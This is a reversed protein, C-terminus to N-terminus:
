WGSADVRALSGFYGRVVGRDISAVAAGGPPVWAVGAAGGNGAAGFTAQGSRGAGGAGGAKSSTSGARAGSSGPAAEYVPALPLGTRGRLQPVVGDGASKAGPADGAAAGGPVSRSPKRGPATGPASSGSGRGASGGKEGPKGGASSAGQSPPRGDPARAVAASGTPGESTTGGRAGNAAAASGDPRKGASGDPQDGGPQSASSRTGEPAKESTGDSGDTPAVAGGQGTRATPEAGGVQADSAASDGATSRGSAAGGTRTVGDADVAALPPSDTLPQEFGKLGAGAEGAASGAIGSEARLARNELTVPQAASAVAPANGRPSPVLLLLALAGGLAALLAAEGSRPQLRVRASAESRGLAGRVDALVLAGLGRASAAREASTELELATSVGAGLELDRDLLRAAAVPSTRHALGIAVAAAALGGAPVLWPGSGDNGTALAGLQLLCAAGAGVLAGRRGIALARRREVRRQWVKLGRAVTAVSVVAQVAVAPGSSSGRICAVDRADAAVWRVAAQAGPLRRRRGRVM